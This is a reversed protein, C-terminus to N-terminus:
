SVTHLRVTFCVPGTRYHQGHWYMCSHTGTTETHFKRYSQSIYNKMPVLDGRIVMCNESINTQTRGWVSWWTKTKNIFVLLSRWQKKNLPHICWLNLNLNFFAPANCNACTFDYATLRRLFTSLKSHNCTRLLTFWLFDAMYESVSQRDWWFMESMNDFPFLDEEVSKPSM